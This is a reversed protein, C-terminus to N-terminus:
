GVKLFDDKGLEELRPMECAELYEPGFGDICIVVTPDPM